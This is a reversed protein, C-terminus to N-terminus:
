GVSPDTGARGVGNARFDASPGVAGNGPIPALPRQCVYVCTSAESRREIDTCGYRTVRSLFRAFTTAAYVM